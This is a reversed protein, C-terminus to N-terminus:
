TSVKAGGTVLFWRYCQCLVLLVKVVVVVMNKRELEVLYALQRIDFKKSETTRYIQRM